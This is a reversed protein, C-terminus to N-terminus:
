DDSFVRNITDRDYVRDCADHTCTYPKDADL